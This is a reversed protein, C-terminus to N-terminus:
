ISFLFFNSEISHDRCSRIKSKFFFWINMEVMVCKTSKETLELLAVNAFVDVKNGTLLQIGCKSGFLGRM